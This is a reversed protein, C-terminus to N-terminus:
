DVAEAYHAYAKTVKGDQNFHFVEASLGRVGHYYLTISNVGLLTTMREFHLNPARQLTKAWHAGIAAKGKLVGTSEGTIQPIVPSSMKFDDTYHALDHANWSAIWDAVFHDAFAKDIM